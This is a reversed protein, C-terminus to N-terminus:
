IYAQRCLAFTSPIMKKLIYIGTAYWLFNLSKLVFLQPLAISEIRTTYYQETFFTGIHKVKFNHLSITRLQMNLFYLHKNCIIYKSMQRQKIKSKNKKHLPYTKRIFRECLKKPRHVMWFHFVLM